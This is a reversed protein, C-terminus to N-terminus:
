ELQEWTSKGNYANHFHLVGYLIGISIASAILNAFVNDKVPNLFSYAIMSVSYLWFGSSKWNLISQFSLYLVIMFIRIVWLDFSSSQPFIDALLRLDAFTVAFFELIVFLSALIGFIKGLWLYFSTFGHRLKRDPKNESQPQFIAPRTNPSATGDFFAKLESIETIKVWNNSNGRRAYYSLTIQGTKIMSELQGLTYPGSVKYNISIFYEMFAFSRKKEGEIATDLSLIIWL